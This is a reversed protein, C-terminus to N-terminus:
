IVRQWIAHINGLLMLDLISKGKHESFLPEEFNVYLINKSPTKNKILYNIIQFMITSKGSRRVGKIAIIEPSNIYSIIEETIKRPFGSDISSVGWYNWKALIELIKSDTFM